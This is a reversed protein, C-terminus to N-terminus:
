APFLANWEDWNIHEVAGFAHDPISDNPSWIDSATTAQDIESACIINGPAPGGKETSTEIATKIANLRRQSLEVVEERTPLIDPDLGSETFAKARLKRILTWAERGGETLPRRRIQADSDGASIVGGGTGCLSMTQDILSCLAATDPTSPNQAVQQLLVVLAHLPQHNGPWCWQFNSFTKLSSIIV